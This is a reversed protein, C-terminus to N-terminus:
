GGLWWWLLVAAEDLVGSWVVAELDYASPKTSLLPRQSIGYAPTLEFAGIYRALSQFNDVLSGTSAVATEAAVYSPYAQHLVYFDLTHSFSWSAELGSHPFFLMSPATVYTGKTPSVRIEYGEPSISLLKHPPEPAMTVPVNGM